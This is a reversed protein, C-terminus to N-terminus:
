QPKALRAKLSLIIRAGIAEYDGDFHHGGDIGISEVGKAALMPCPDEGTKVSRRVARFRLERQEFTEIM